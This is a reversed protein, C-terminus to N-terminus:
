IRFLPLEREQERPASPGSAGPKHLKYVRCEGVPGMAMRVGYLSSISKLKSSTVEYGVGGHFLFEPGPGANLEVLGGAARSWSQKISQPFWFICNRGCSYFDTM